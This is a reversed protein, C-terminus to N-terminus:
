ELKMAKARQEVTSSMLCGSVTIVGHTHPHLSPPVLILCSILLGLEFHLSPFSSPQMIFIAYSFSQWTSPLIYLGLYMFPFFCGWSGCTGGQLRLLLPSVNLEARVKSYHCSVSFDMFGIKQQAPTPFYRGPFATPATFVGTQTDLPVQATFRCCGSIVLWMGTGSAWLTWPHTCFNRPTSRM